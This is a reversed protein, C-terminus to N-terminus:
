HINSYGCVACCVCFNKDRNHTKHSNGNVQPRPDGANLVDANGLRIAKIYANRLTSPGAPLAPMAPVPNAAPSVTISTATVRRNVGPLMRVAPPNQFPQVTVRYNGPFVRPITFQGEAAPAGFPLRMGPVLPDSRLSPRVSVIEAASSSGPLGEIVIRGSLDVGPTVQITINDLDSEGVEIPVRGIM